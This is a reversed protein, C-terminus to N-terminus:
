TAARNLATAWNPQTVSKDFWGLSNANVTGPHWVQMYRYEGPGQPGNDWWFRLPYGPRRPRIWHPPQLNNSYFAQPATYGIDISVLNVTTLPESKVFTDKLRIGSGGRGLPDPEAVPVVEDLAERMVEAANVVLDVARTQVAEVLSSVDAM